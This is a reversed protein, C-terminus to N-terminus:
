NRSSIVDINEIGLAERLYELQDQTLDKTFIDALKEKSRCHRRRLSYM